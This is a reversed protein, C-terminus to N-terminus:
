RCIDGNRLTMRCAPTKGELLRVNCLTLLPMVLTSRISAAFTVFHIAFMGMTYPTCHALMNGKLLRLDRHYSFCGVLSDHLIEWGVIFMGM